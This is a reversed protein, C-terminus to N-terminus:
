YQWLLLDESVYVFGRHAKTHINNITLPIMWVPIFIADNNVRGWIMRFQIAQKKKISFLLNENQLFTSM